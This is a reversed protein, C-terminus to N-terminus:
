WGNESPPLLPPGWIGKHFRGRIDLPWMWPGCGPAVHDSDILPCHLATGRSCNTNHELDHFKLLVGGFYSFLYQTSVPSASPYFPWPPDEAGWLGGGYGTRVVGDRTWWVCVPMPRAPHDWCEARIKGVCRCGECLYPKLQWLRLRGEMVVECRAKRWRYWVSGDVVLYSEVYTLGKQYSIIQLLCAGWVLWFM